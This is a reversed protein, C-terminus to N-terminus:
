TMDLKILYIMTLSLFRITDPVRLFQSTQDSVRLVLQAIVTIYPLCESHPGQQAGM